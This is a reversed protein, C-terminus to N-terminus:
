NERHPEQVSLMSLTSLMSLMGQALEKDKGDQQLFNFLSLIFGELFSNLTNIHINYYLSNSLKKRCKFVQM